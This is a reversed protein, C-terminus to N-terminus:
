KAKLTYTVNGVTLRGDISTIDNNLPQTGSSVGSVIWEYYSYTVNSPTYGSNYNDKRYTVYPIYSNQSTISYGPHSYATKLKLTGTIGNTSTLKYVKCDAMDCGFESPVNLGELKINSNVLSIKVSVSQSTSSSQFAAYITSGTPIESNLSQAYLLNDTSFCRGDIYWGIFEYGSNASAYLDNVESQYLTYKKADNADLSYDLESGQFISVTGRSSSERIECQEDSIYITWGVSNKTFKAQM